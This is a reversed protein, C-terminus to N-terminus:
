LISALSDLSHASSTLISTKLPLHTYCSFLPPIPLLHALVSAHLQAHNCFPHWATWLTHQHHSYVQRSPSTPIVPSSPLYLSSIHWSQHTFSRTIVSHIGPQGFLTSIIHTYKDQPPPPYTSYCSFLPPIPLLHALVSAHLQTHNCFPHWATWLTHQHHSYVQRSPSTPLNFLLLLPSSIHWYQHTFSCTIVSHIGPQGFLTSIIHTYKDQPPPPYTSYCFFLPPIPLLHAM